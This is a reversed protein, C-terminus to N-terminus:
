MTKKFFCKHKQMFNIANFRCFSLFICSPFLYAASESHKKDKRHAKIYEVRRAFGTLSMSKTM